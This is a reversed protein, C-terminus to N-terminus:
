FPIGFACRRNRYVIPAISPTRYSCLFRCRGGIGLDDTEDQTFLRGITIPRDVGIISSSGSCMVPVYRGNPLRMIRARTYKCPDVGKDEGDSPDGARIPGLSVLAFRKLPGPDAGGQPVRLTLTDALEVGFQGHACENITHDTAFPALPNIPPFITTRDNPHFGTGPM